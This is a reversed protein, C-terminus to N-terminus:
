GATLAQGTLSARWREPDDRLCRPLESGLPVEEFREAANFIYTRSAVAKEITDTDVIDPTAKETHSYALIKARLREPSGNYTFHWSSSPEIRVQLPYGFDWWARMGLVYPEVWGLNHRKSVRPKFARVAQPDRCYRRQLLRPAQVLSPTRGAAKLNFYYIYCTSEFVTFRRAADPAALVQSLVEPRPIEDVDSVLVFDEPAADALGRLMARRSFHERAWASDANQPYDSAGLVVHEIKDLWPRFREKNEMFVLPKPRGSFTLAGEVLVFRDVIGDLEALRLELVELEDFFTFCDFLRRRM